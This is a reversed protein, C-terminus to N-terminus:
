CFLSDLQGAATYETPRFTIYILTAKRTSSSSQVSSLLYPYRTVRYYCPLSERPISPAVIVQVM